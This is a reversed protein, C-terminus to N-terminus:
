KLLLAAASQSAGSAPRALLSANRSFYTGALQVIFLMKFADKFAHKFYM